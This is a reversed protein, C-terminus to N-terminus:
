NKCCYYLARLISIWINWIDPDVLKMIKRLGRDDIYWTSKLLLRLARRRRNRLYIVSHSFQQAHSDMEEENFGCADTDCAVYKRYVRQM